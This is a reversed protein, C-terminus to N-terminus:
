MVRTDLDGSVWILSLHPLRAPTLVVKGVQPILYFSLFNVLLFSLLGRDEKGSPPHTATNIYDTGM